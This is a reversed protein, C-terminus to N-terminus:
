EGGLLGMFKALIVFGIAITVIIGLATPVISPLEYWGGIVGIVEVPATIAGGITQLTGLGASALSGLLDLPNGTPTSLSKLATTVKTIGQMLNLDYITTAINKGDKLDTEEFGYGIKFDSYISLFLTLVVIFLVTAIITNRITIVAM